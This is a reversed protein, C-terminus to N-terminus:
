RASDCEEGFDKFLPTGGAVLCGRLLPGLALAAIVVILFPLLVWLVFDTAGAAQELPDPSHRFSPEEQPLHDLAKFKNM